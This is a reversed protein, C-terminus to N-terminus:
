VCIYPPWAGDPAAGLCGDYTQPPSAGCTGGYSYGCQQLGTDPCELTDCLGTPPPPCTSTDWFLGPGAHGLV